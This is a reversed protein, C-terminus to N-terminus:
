LAISRAKGALARALDTLVLRSLAEAAQRRAEVLGLEAGPDIALDLTEPTDAALVLAGVVTAKRAEPPGLDVVHWEVQLHGPEFVLEGGKPLDFRAPKHQAVRYVLAYRAKAARECGARHEPTAPESGSASGDAMDRLCDLFRHRYAFGAELPADHKVNYPDRLSPLGIIITNDRAPDRQDIELVGDPVSVETIRTAEPLSPALALLDQRIQTLAPRLDAIADRRSEKKCGSAGWVLGLAVLVAARM